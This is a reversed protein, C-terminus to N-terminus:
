IRHLDVRQRNRLSAMDSTSLVLHLVKNLSLNNLSFSLSDNIDEPALYHLSQHILIAAAVTLCTRDTHSALYQSTLDREIVARRHSDRNVGARRHGSRIIIARRQGDRNIVAGWTATGTSSPGGTATGTSSPGGTAM